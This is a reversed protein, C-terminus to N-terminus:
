EEEGVPENANTTIGHRQPRTPDIAMGLPKETRLLDVYAAFEAFPRYLIHTTGSSSNAPLPVGEPMFAIDLFDHSSGAGQRCRIGAVAWKAPDTGLGILPLPGLSISYTSIAFTSAAKTGADAAPRPPIIRVTTGPRLLRSAPTSPELAPAPILFSQGANPGCASLGALIVMTGLFRTGSVLTRMQAEM